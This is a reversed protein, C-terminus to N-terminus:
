AAWYQSDRTRWKYGLAGLGLLTVIVGTGLLLRMGHRDSNQHEAIPATQQDTGTEAAAEFDAAPAQDGSDLTPVDGGTADPAPQDGPAAPPQGGKDGKDAGKRPKSTTTTAGKAAKDKSKGTTTTPAPGSTTPTM